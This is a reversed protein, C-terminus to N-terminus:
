INEETVKFNSIVAPKPSRQTKKSYLKFSLHIDQTKMLYVLIKCVIYKHFANNNVQLRM